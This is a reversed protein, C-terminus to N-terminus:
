HPGLSRRPGDIVEASLDIGTVFEDEVTCVALYAGPRSAEIVLSADRTFNGEPDIWGLISPVPAGEPADDAAEFSGDDLVAATMGYVRTGTSGERHRVEFPILAAPRGDVEKLITPGVVRIRANSTRSGRRIAEDAPPEGGEGPMGPFLRSLERSFEGLPQADTPASRAVTPTTLAAMAGRVSRIAFRVTSQDTRGDISQPVWDDHAPPEADAFLRDLERDVLFVGGYEIDDSGIEPGSLYKVVLEPTRMLAVHHSPTSFDPPGSIPKPYRSPVGGISRRTRYPFRRVSCVGVRRGSRAFAQVHRSQEAIDGAYEKVDAMAAAFSDLPPFSRPDPIPFEVGENSLRFEIAPSGDPRSLMKPWFNWLLAEGLFAITEPGSMGATQPQIIGITTGTESGVFQSMGLSLALEDAAEDLVPEIVGGQPLGWWHRGTFRGLRPGTRVVYRQGIASAMFRSEVRGRHICRTHVVITRALSALYLSAKGYGYTGGTIARRDPPEGVNRLFDVFDRPDNEATLEDAVTPGGLGHTGRDSMALIVVPSPNELVSALPLNDMTELDPVETIVSRRLADLNSADLTWLRIEFTLGGGPSLRADWSNQVAERTMVTLPDLPPRGLPNLVGEGAVNGLPGFKESFLAMRTTM